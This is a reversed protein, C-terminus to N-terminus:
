RRVALYQLRRLMLEIVHDWTYQRATEVGQQRMRAMEQPRSLLVGIGVFSTEQRRRAEDPSLFTTHGDHLSDVMGRLLYEQFHAQVLSLIRLVPRPRLLHLLELLLAVAYSAGFCFLTIRDLGAPM